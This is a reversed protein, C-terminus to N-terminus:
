KHYTENALIKMARYVQELLIVRMLQHDFTFASFSLTEDARVLVEDSLGNSGGIILAVRSKGANMLSQWHAAWAESSFGKGDIALAIVYEDPAIKALLARGEDRKVQEVQAASMGPPAPLDPVEVIQLRVFRALRKSFEACAAAYHKERCKGVAILKIQLM